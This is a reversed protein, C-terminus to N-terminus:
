GVAFVKPSACRSAASGRRPSLFPQAVRGWAEAKRGAPYSFSSVTKGEWYSGAGYIICFGRNASIKDLGGPRGIGALGM